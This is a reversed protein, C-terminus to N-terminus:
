RRGPIHLAASYYGGVNRGLRFVNDEPQVWTKYGTTEDVYYPQGTAPDLYAVWPNAELATRENEEYKQNYQTYEETKNESMKWTLEVGRVGKTHSTPTLFKLTM